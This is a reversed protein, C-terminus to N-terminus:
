GSFGMQLDKIVNAFDRKGPSTVCDCTRPILVLADKPVTNQGGCAPLAALSDAGSVWLGQHTRPVPQAWSGLGGRQDQPRERGAM